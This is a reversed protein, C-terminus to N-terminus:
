SVYRLLAKVNELSPSATGRETRSITSIAVTDGMAARADRTSHGKRRRAERLLLPLSELVGIIEAYDRPAAGATM